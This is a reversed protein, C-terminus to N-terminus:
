TGHYSRPTCFIDDIHKRNCSGQISTRLFRPVACCCRQREDEMTACFYMMTLGSIDMTLKQHSVIHLMQREDTYIYENDDLREDKGIMGANCNM